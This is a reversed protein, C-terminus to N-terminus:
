AHGSVHINNKCEMDAHKQYVDRFTYPHLVDENVDM